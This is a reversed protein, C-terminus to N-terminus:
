KYELSCILMQQKNKHSITLERKHVVKDSSNMRLTANYGGGGGWM